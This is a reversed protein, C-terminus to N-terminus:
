PRIGRLIKKEREILNINTGDSARHMLGNPDLTHDNIPGFDDRTIISKTAHCLEHLLTQQIQMFSIRDESLPVIVLEASSELGVTRSTPHFKKVGIVKLGNELNADEAWTIANEVSGDGGQENGVGGWLLLFEVNYPPRVINVNQPSPPSPFVQLYGNQNGFIFDVVDPNWVDAFTYVTGEMQYFFDVDLRAWITYIVEDIVPTDFVTAQVRYSDGRVGSSDISVSSRGAGDVVVKGTFRGNDISKDLPYGVSEVFFTHQGFTRGLGSYSNSRTTNPEPGHDFIAFEVSQNRDSLVFWSSTNKDWREVRADAGIFSDKKLYLRAPSNSATIPDPNLGSPGFVSLNLRYPSLAVVFSADCVVGGCVPRIRLREPLDDPEKNLVKDIVGLYLSYQSVTQGDVESTGLFNSSLVTLRNDDESAFQLNPFDGPINVVHVQSVEEMVLWESTPPLQAQVGHFFSFFLLAM